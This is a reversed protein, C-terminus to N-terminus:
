LNGCFPLQRDELWPLTQMSRLSDLVKCDESEPDVITSSTFLLSVAVGYLFAGRTIWSKSKSTFFITAVRENVMWRTSWHATTASAGERLSCPNVGCRAIPDWMLTSVCETLLWAQAHWEQLIALVPARHAVALFQRQLLSVMIRYEPIWICSRVPKHRLM